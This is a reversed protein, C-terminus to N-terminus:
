SLACDVVWWDPYSKQLEEAGKAASARDDFLAFCTAGSGSMRITRAGQLRHLANLVDSIVPAAKIAAAELDNRQENLWDFFREPEGNPIKPMEDMKSNQKDTLNKFVAPTPVHIKPNALVAFLNPLGTVRDLLEGIGAMRSAASLCCVPVDAGLAAGDTDAELARLVAAADSSGGGIGAGHPLNKELQIRGTWGALKAAAWVLNSEDTPVGKAFPGVVEVSMDPGADLWLRDGVDAFLVLSDLLHYGDLRQGTVHLTLNIKAPAFAEIRM